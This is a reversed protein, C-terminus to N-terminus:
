CRGREAGRGGSSKGLGKVRPLLEKKPSAAQRSPVARGKRSDEVRCSEVSKREDVRGDEGYSDGRAWHRPKNVEGKRGGKPCGIIKNGEEGEQM